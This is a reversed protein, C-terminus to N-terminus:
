MVYVTVHGVNIASGTVMSIGTVSLRIIKRSATVLHEGVAKRRNKREKIGEQM